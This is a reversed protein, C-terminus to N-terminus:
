SILINHFMKKNRPLSPKASLGKFIKGKASSCSKGHTRFGIKRTVVLGIRKHPYPSTNVVPVPIILSKECLDENTKESIVHQSTQRPSSKRESWIMKTYDDMSTYEEDFLKPDSLNFCQNRGSIVSARRKMDVKVDIKRKSSYVSYATLPRGKICFDTKKQVSKHRSKKCVDFSHSILEQIRQARVTSKEESTDVYCKDARTSNIFSANSSETAVYPSDETDFDKYSSQPRVRTQAEILFKEIEDKEVFDQSNARKQIIFRRM